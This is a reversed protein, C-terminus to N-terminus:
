KEWNMDEHDNSKAGLLKNYASCLPIYEDWLDVKEKYYPFDSPLALFADTIDLLKLKMQELETM